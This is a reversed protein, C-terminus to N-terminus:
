DTSKMDGLLLLADKKKSHEPFYKVFHRLQIDAYDSLGAAHFSKGLWYYAEAENPYKKILIMFSSFARVYDGNYYYNIGEIMLQQKEPEKEIVVQTNEQQASQLFQAVPVSIEKCINEVFDNENSKYSISYKLITSSTEFLLTQIQINNVEKVISGRLIYNANALKGVSQITQSELYKEWGLHQESVIKDLAYRDVIYISREYTSFCATLLDPLGKQLSDYRKDQTANTFPIILLRNPSNEAIVANSFILFFSILLIKM